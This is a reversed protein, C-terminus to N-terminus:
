RTRITCHDFIVTKPLTIFISLNSMSSSTNVSDLVKAVATGVAAGLGLEDTRVYLATGCPTIKDVSRGPATLVGVGLQVGQGVKEGVGTCGVGVGAGVRM